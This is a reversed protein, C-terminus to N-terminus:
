EHAGQIRKDPLQRVRRGNLLTGDDEDLLRLYKGFEFREQIWKMKERHRNEGGDLIDDTRIM